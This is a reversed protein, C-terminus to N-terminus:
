PWRVVAINTREQGAPVGDRARASVMFGVEDGSRPGRWSADMPPIRIQDPGLEEGTVAKCVQGPRLWDYTAGYWVGGFQYFVWVNGEVDIDGFRSVPFRGAGTHDVCIESRTITVSTIRSTIPWGSVDQHLWRVRRPDIDDAGSGGARPAERVTVRITERTQSGDSEVVTASLNFAGNTKYTYTTTATGNIPGVETVTGDGFNVTLQGSVDDSGRKATVRLTFPQTAVPEAPDTSLTIAVAAKVSISLDASTVGGASARVTASRTTTLKVKAQGAADTTVPTGPELTGESTTFTVQQGSMPAGTTSTVTATIDVSGGQVPLSTPSAALTVSRVGVSPSTPGGPKDDDGCGAAVLLAAAAAPLALGCLRPRVTRIRSPRFAPICNMDLTEVRVTLAV